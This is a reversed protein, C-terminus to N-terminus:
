VNRQDAIHGRLSWNSKPIENIIIEVNELNIGVKDNMNANILRILGEKEEETKTNFVDIEIITYNDTKTDPFIFDEKDFGIFRHFKKDKPVNFVLTVAEHIIYSIIRKNRKINNHLAYVKVQIM